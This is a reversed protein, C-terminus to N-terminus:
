FFHGDNLMRQTAQKGNHMLVDIISSYPDQPRKAEVGQLGAKFFQLNLGNEAFTAKDYLDVGGEPNCYTDIEMAQCLHIIRQTSAPLVDQPKLKDEVFDLHQHEITLTTDIELFQCLQQISRANYGHLTNIDDEICAQIVPFVEDFFEARAYMTRVKKSLKRKWDGEVLEIDVIRSNSSAKKVFVNIDERKGNADLLHNRTIFSKKRFTVNAYLIFHDCQNILQFYGLYPFFYPQM